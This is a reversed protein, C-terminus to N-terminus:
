PRAVAGGAGRLMSRHAAGARRECPACGRWLLYVRAQMFERAGDRDAPTLRRRALGRDDAAARHKAGTRVEPPRSSVRKVAGAGERRPTQRALGTTTLMAGTDLRSRLRRRSPELFLDLFPRSSSSGGRGIASMDVLDPRSPPASSPHDAAYTAFRCELPHIEPSRPHDRTIEPSRPHDRTIEPHTTEAHRPSGASSRRASSRTATARRSRSSCRRRATDM